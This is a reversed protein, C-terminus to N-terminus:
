DQNIPNGLYSLHYLRYLQFLGYADLQGVIDGLDAWPLEFTRSESLAVGDTFVVEAAELAQTLIVEVHDIELGIFNVFILGRGDQGVGQGSFPHNPFVV